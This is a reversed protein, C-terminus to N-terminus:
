RRGRREDIRRLQEVARRYERDDREIVVILRERDAAADEAACIADVDVEVFPPRFVSVPLHM